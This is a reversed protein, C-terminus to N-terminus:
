ADLPKRHLIMSAVIGNDSRQHHCANYQTWKYNRTQWDFAFRRLTDVVWQECDALCHHGTTDVFFVVFGRRKYGTRAKKLNTKNTFVDVHVSYPSIAVLTKLRFYNRSVVEAKRKTGIIM